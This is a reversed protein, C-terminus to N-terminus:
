HWSYKHVKYGKRQYLIEGASTIESKEAKRRIVRKENKLAGPSYSKDNCYQIVKELLDIDERDLEMRQLPFFMTQHYYNM